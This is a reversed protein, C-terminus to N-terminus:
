SSGGLFSCCFVGLGVLLIKVRLAFFWRTRGGFALNIGSAGKRVDKAKAWQVIMGPLCPALYIVFRGFLCWWWSELGCGRILV